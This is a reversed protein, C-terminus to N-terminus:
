RQYSGTGDAVIVIQEGRACLTVLLRQTREVVPEPLDGVTERQADQAVGGQRFVRDLLREEGHPPLRRAEVARASLRRGPNEREHM